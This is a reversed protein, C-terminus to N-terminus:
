EQKASVVIICPLPLSSFILFAQSCEDHPHCWTPSPPPAWLQNLLDQILKSDVKSGVRSATSLWKCNPGGGIDGQHWLIIVRRKYIKTGARWWLCWFQQWHFNNRLHTTCFLRQQYHWLLSLLTKGVVFRCCVIVVVVSVQTSVCKASPDAVCEWMEWDACRRM